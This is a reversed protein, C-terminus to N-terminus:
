PRYILDYLTEERIKCSIIHFSKCKEQHTLASMQRELETRILKTNTLIGDIDGTARDLSLPHPLCLSTLFSTSLPPPHASLSHPLYVSSSRQSPPPSPLLRDVQRRMSREEELQRRLHKNEGSLANLKFRGMEREKEDAVEKLRKVEVKLTDNAEQLHEKEETIILLMKNQAKMQATLSENSAKQETIWRNVYAMVRQSEHRLNANDSWMGDLESRLTDVQKQADQKEREAKLKQDVAQQLNKRLEAVETELRVVMSRIKEEALKGENLCGAMRRAEEARAALEEVTLQHKSRLEELEQSLQRIHSSLSQKERLARMVKEEEKQLAEQLRQLEGKQVDVERSRNAAAQWAEKLEKESQRLLMVRIKQTDALEFELRTVEKNLHTVEQELQSRSTLLTQHSAVLSQKLSVKEKQLQQRHRLLNLYEKDSHSHNQQYLRLDCEFMLKQQKLTDVQEQLTGMQSKLHDVKQQSERLQNQNAQLEDTLQDIVEQSSEWQGVKEHYQQELEALEEKVSHTALQSERLQQQSYRLEEELLEVKGQVRHVKEIAATYKQKFTAVTEKHEQAQLSAEKLEEKAGKLQQCLFEMEVEQMKLKEESAEIQQQNIRLQDHLQQQHVKEKQEKLREIDRVKESLQCAEEQHVRVKQTLRGVECELAVVELHSTHLKEHSLALDAELREKTQNLHVCEKSRDEMQARLEDREECLKKLCKEKSLLKKQCDSQQKKSETLEKVLSCMKIERKQIKKETTHRVYTLEQQLREMEKNVHHFQDQIQQREVNLSSKAQDLTESIDSVIYESTQLEQTHTRASGVKRQLKALSDRLQTSDHVLQQTHKEWDAPQQKGVTYDVYRGLTMVAEDADGKEGEEERDRERKRSSYENKVESLLTEEKQHFESLKASQQEAQKRSAELLSAISYSKFGEDNDNPRESNLITAKEAWKKIAQTHAKREEELGRKWEKDRRKEVEERKQQEQRRRDEAKQLEKEYKLRQEDERRMWEEEKRRVEEQLERVRVNLKSLQAHTDVGEHQLLQINAQLKTICIDKEAIEKMNDKEIQQLCSLERQLNELRKGGELVQTATKKKQQINEKLEMELDCIVMDKTQLQIKLEELESAIKVLSGPKHPIDVIPGVLEDLSLTRLVVESVKEVGVKTETNSREGGAMRGKEGERESFKEDLIHDSTRLKMGLCSVKHDAEKQLDEITQVLVRNQDTLDNVYSRLFDVNRQLTEERTTTTDLELCRMREEYLGKFEKLLQKISNIETGPCHAYVKLEKEGSHSSLNMTDSGGGSDPTTTTQSM